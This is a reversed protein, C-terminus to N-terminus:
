SLGGAGAGACVRNVKLLVRPPFLLSSLPSPMEPELTPLAPLTSPLVPFIFLFVLLRWPFTPFANRTPAASPGSPGVARVVLRGPLALTGAPAPRCRCLTLLRGPGEVPLPALRGGGHWSWGGVSPWPSWGAGAGSPPFAQGDPSRASEIMKARAGLAQAKACM